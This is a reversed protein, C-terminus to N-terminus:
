RRLGRPLTPWSQEGDEDDDRRHELERQSGSEGEESAEDCGDDGTRDDREDGRGDHGDEEVHQGGDGAASRRCGGRCARAAVRSTEAASARRAEPIQRNHAGIM